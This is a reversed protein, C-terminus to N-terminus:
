RNEKGDNLRITFSRLPCEDTGAFHVWSTYPIPNKELDKVLQGRFCSKPCRSKNKEYDACHAYDHNM